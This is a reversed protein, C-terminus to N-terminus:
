FRGKFVPDDFMFPNSSRNNTKSTRRKTRKKKVMKKKPNLTLTQGGIQLTLPTQRTNKKRRIKRTPKKRVQSQTQQRKQLDVAFNQLGSGASRLGKGVSVLAPNKLKFRERKLEKIEMERKRKAKLAKVENRLQSLRVMTNEGIHINFLLFIIFTKNRDAVVM